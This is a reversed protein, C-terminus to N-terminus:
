NEYGNYKLKAKILDIKLRDKERNAHSYFYLESGLTMCPIKLGDKEIVVIQDKFNTPRLPNNQNSAVQIDINNIVFNTEKYGNQVIIKSNFSQVIKEFGQDDTLIDLDHLEIDINQIQLNYTGIVVFKVDHLKKLLLKLVKEM